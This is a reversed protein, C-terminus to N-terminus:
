KAKSKAGSKKATSGATDSSEATASEASGIEDHREVEWVIGGVGAEYGVPMKNKNAKYHELAGVHEMAAAELNGGHNKDANERIAIREEPRM